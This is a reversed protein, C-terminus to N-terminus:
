AIKLGDDWYPHEGYRGALFDSFVQIRRPMLRGPPYVAHIGVAAGRYENLITVLSDQKVYSGLIFAPSRTIGLGASAAAALQSRSTVMPVEPEVAM